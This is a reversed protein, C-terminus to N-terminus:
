SPNSLFDMPFVQFDVLLPSIRNLFYVMFILERPRDIVQYENSYRNFHLKREYYQNALMEPDKGDSELCIIDIDM